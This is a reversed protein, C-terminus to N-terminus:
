KKDSVGFPNKANMKYVRCPHFVTNVKPGGRCQSDLARIM